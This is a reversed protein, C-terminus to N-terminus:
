VRDKSGGSEEPFEYGYREALRAFLDRLSMGFIRRVNEDTLALPRGAGPKRELIEDMERALEEVLPRDPTAM